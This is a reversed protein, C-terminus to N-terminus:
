VVAQGCDKHRYDPPNILAWAPGDIRVDSRRSAAVADNERVRTVFLVHRVLHHSWEPSWNPPSRWRFWHSGLM